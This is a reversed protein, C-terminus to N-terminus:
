TCLQSQLLWYTFEPYCSYWLSLVAPSLIAYRPRQQQLVGCVKFYSTALQPGVLTLDKWADVAEESVLKSLKVSISQQMKKTM